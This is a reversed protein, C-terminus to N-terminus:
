SGESAKLKNFPMVYFNPYESLLQERTLTRLKEDYLKTFYYYPLDSTGWRKKFDYVGDQTLWTGGWNWHTYRDLIADQMAQYILLSLPQISRYAEIITPTYYEVTKNYYFLLLAAVPIGELEAVYIRYNEQPISIGIKEFFEKEKAIGGIAKINDQHVQFLFDLDSTDQSWRVQIGSKIAKKINRPRPDSFIKMLSEAVNESKEPLSTIQGIRQDMFDFTANQNYFDSQKDFPSTIITTSVCNQVRAVQDFFALMGKKISLDGQHEIVGGNSGYFPLSNLINGYRENRKLFAPLVAALKGAADVAGLYFSEAQLYSKLLNRYACSAYFLTHRDQLIFREYEADWEEDLVIYRM